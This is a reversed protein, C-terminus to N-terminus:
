LRCSDKLCASAAACQSATHNEQKSPGKQQLFIVGFFLRSDNRNTWRRFRAHRELLALLRCAHHPTGPVLYRRQIQYACCYATYSVGHYWQCSLLHYRRRLSCSLVLTRNFVLVSKSTGSTYLKRDRDRLQVATITTKM